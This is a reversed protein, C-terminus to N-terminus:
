AVSELSSDISRVEKFVQFARVLDWHCIEVKYEYLEDLILGFTAREAGDKMEEETRALTRHNVGTLQCLHARMTPRAWAVVDEIADLAPQGIGDWGEGKLIQHIM